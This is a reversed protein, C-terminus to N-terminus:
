LLKERLWVAFEMSLSRNTLFAPYPMTTVRCDDRYGQEHSPLCMM